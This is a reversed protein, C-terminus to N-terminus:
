YWEKWPKATVADLAAPDDDLLAKEYAEIFRDGAINDRNRLRGIAAFMRNDNYEFSHFVEVDHADHVAYGWGSEVITWPLPHKELKEDILGLLISCRKQLFQKKTTPMHAEKQGQTYGSHALM